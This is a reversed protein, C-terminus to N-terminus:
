HFGLAFSSEPIIELIYGLMISSILSRTPLLFEILFM